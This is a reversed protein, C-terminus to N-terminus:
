ESLGIERAPTAGRSTKRKMWRGLRAFGWGWRTFMWYLTPMGLLILVTSSGLGGITSLALNMWIDKGESLDQKYLLPLMGAITTGSTLLISRMQIRVGSTIATRLIDQRDSAPLRWLDFGGLRSKAPVLDGSFSRAEVAERIQLRFRNILLIANNVVIGFMLILGIKASSDFESGTGWFIGAVGVLAMPVALLVLWPLFFSEFMAALAMCIFALTLGLTQKLEEEEEETMQQGSMDEVTYGYPLEIGDIIEQIFRRRMSDTGIYEWSLLMSYRQDHRNISSVEPRQEIRVLDGLRVKQGRSTTMTRGLIQDYEIEQSDSFTMMLRQDEGDLVMHWPREVGLMRRIYAMIEVMGLRHRALADRDLIVVTEDTSNRDFRDGSTLRANRVRRNRGLRVLVGDTLSKLEKSNYGVMRISSNANGGGRGGKMYPDGFGNIWIFMGGMEEALTILRNRFLEPYVSALMEDEFELNIWARNEYAGSRMHVGEPVPLVEQEFLAITASSLTVDTGVPREVYVVIQEKSQPRWFGGTRVKDKFVFFTGVFLGLVLVAPVYWVKLHLRTLTEAYSVFIGVAGLLVATGAVWPGLNRAFSEDKILLAAALVGACIFAVALLWRWLMAWGTLEFEDGAATNDRMEKTAPGRLAVPIWCFAVFISAMMAIGVSVALPRYFLSLRETMFIFSLFAVVTTLTTAMIPFAVEGTGRVLATRADPHRKSSLRRHISDLVLISNDLLMGFSVTLGSITIFNVSVGLFYFLSLCIVIALLISSIVIGTLLIRKLAIALMVFLLGLIVMSRIVLERLKDELDKGEDQDVKFRIAFPASEEIQPLESRLRRSVSISNQGSRKTINLSVVNDGDIRSFYAIDEFDPKLTAVDKLRIPQGGLNRLECVALRKSTVSDRVSVTLHNGNRRVSGAPLIDDLSELRAAVQDATMGYRELQELNLLVRVLPRAGGRLEADAVGPIALFRPVLWTEARDRLENLPLPSILSVSFFDETQLEEPVYPRIVPQGAQAPLSRRVAGLKESLELRAFEMDSGRQYKVTVTSRGHRSQSDIDEVGHCGAVAEEVPLTISRQIASPSAGNWATDISLEPLETEPMAEINLRPLAYLGTVIMACFLMWTAVPHDVAFRIM